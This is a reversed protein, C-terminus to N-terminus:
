PGSSPTTCLDELHFYILAKLQDDFTMKLPRYGRAELPPMGIKAKDVPVYLRSFSPVNKKRLQNLVYRM